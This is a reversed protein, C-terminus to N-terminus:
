SLQGVAARQTRKVINPIADGAVADRVAEGQRRATTGPAAEIEMKIAPIGINFTQNVITTGLGRGETSSIAAGGRGLGLQEGFTTEQEEAAEERQPRAGGGGGRRRIRANDRRARQRREIQEETLLGSVFRDSERKARERDAADKRDLELSEKAAAVDRDALKREEIAAQRRSEDGSEEAAELETQAEEFRALAKQGDEAEELSEREKETFPKSKALDKEAAEADRLSREYDDVDSTLAIVAASLQGFPGSAILASAKGLGGVADTVDNFAQLLGFLTKALDAATQVLQKLLKLVEDRSLERNSQIWDRFDELLEQVVPALEVAIETTLGDIVTNVRTLEDNLEAARTLAEEDLVGGLEGAEIRLGRFQEETLNIVEGLEIGQEGLLQVSLATRKTSDEVRSLENRILEFAEVPSRESLELLSLGLEDAADAFPGTGSKAAEAARIQVEKLADSLSTAEAGSLEAVFRLEQLAQASVGLKGARKGIEDTAEAWDKTFAFVAATAAAAATGIVALGASVALGAGGALKGAGKVSRGIDAWSRGIKKGARSTKAAAKTAEDGLEETGEIVDDTSEKTKDLQNDYAKLDSRARKSDLKIRAILERLVTM